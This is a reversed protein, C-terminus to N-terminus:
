YRPFFIFLYVLLIETNKKRERKENKGNIAKMKHWESGLVNRLFQGLLVPCKLSFSIEPRFPATVVLTDHM